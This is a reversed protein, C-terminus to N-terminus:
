AVLGYKEGDGAHCGMLCEGAGFVVCVSCRCWMGVSLASQPREAKALPFATDAKRIGIRQATWFARKERVKAHEATIIIACM